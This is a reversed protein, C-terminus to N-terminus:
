FSIIPDRREASVKKLLAGVTIKPSGVSYSTSRYIVAKPGSNDLRDSARRFQSVDQCPLRRLKSISFTLAYWYYGPLFLAPLTVTVSRLPTLSAYIRTPGSPNGLRLSKYDM